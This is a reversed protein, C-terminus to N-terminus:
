WPRRSGSVWLNSFYKEETTSTSLPKDPYSIICSIPQRSTKWLHNISQINLLSCEWPRIRRLDQRYRSVTNSSQLPDYMQEDWASVAVRGEVDPGQSPFCICSPCSLQTPFAAQPLGCSVTLLFSFWHWSFFILSVLPPFNSLLYFCHCLAILPSFFLHLVM